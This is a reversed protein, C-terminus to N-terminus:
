AMGVWTPPHVTPDFAANGYCVTCECWTGDSEWHHPSFSAYQKPPPLYMGMPINRSNPLPRWSVPNGHPYVPQSPAWAYTSSPTVPSLFESEVSGDFSPSIPPTLYAGRSINATRIMMPASKIRSTAIDARPRSPSSSHASNTRSLVPTLLAPSPKGTTDFQWTEWAKRWTSWGKQETPNLHLSYGLRFLWDREAVNLEKKDIHTIDSWSSNTFNNDDLFKNALVLSIALFKYIDETDIIPDKHTGEYRRQELSLRKNLYTLGLIITSSPLRTLKLLREVFSRLKAWPTHLGIFNCSVNAVFDIMVKPDYDLIAMVGGTVPPHAPQEPVVEVFPHWDQPLHERRTMDVTAFQDVWFPGSPHVPQYPLVHRGLGPPAPMPLPPGPVFHGPAALSMPAHVPIMHGYGPPLVPRDPGLQHVYSPYAASSSYEWMRSPLSRADHPPFSANPGMQPGASSMHTRQQFQTHSPRPQSRPAQNPILLSPRRAANRASPDQPPAMNVYPTYRVDGPM